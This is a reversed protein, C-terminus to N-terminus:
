HKKYKNKSLAFFCIYFVQLINILYQNFMNVIGAQSIATTDSDAKVKTYDDTIKLHGFYEEDGVGYTRETSAHNKPAKGDVLRDISAIKEELNIGNELEVNKADAGLPYPESFTGDPLKQSINKIKLM